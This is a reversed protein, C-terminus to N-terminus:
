SSINVTSSPTMGSNVVLDPPRSSSLLISKLLETTYLCSLCNFGLVDLPGSPRDAINKFFKDEERANGKDIKNLNDNEDPM